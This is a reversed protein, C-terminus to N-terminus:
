WPPATGSAAGWAPTQRRAPRRTMRPPPLVVGGGSTAENLGTANASVVGWSASLFMVSKKEKLLMSDETMLLRLCSMM